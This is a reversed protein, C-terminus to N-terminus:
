TGMRASIEKKLAIAPMYEPLFQLLERLVNLSKDYIDKKFFCQAEILLGEPDPHCIQKSKGIFDIAAETYGHAFLVRAIFKCSEYNQKSFIEYASILNETYEILDNELFLNLYVELFARIQFYRPTKTYKLNLLDLVVLGWEIAMCPNKASGWIKKAADPNKMLLQCLGAEYPMDLNVFLMYADEYCKSYFLQKALNTNFIIREEDM